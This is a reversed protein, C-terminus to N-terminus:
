TVVMCLLVKTAAWLAAVLDCIFPGQRQWFTECLDIFGSGPVDPDYPDRAIVLDLLRGVMNYWFLDNFAALALFSVAVFVAYVKAFTVIRCHHRHAVVLIAGGIGWSLFAALCLRLEIGGVAFLYILVFSMLLRMNNL